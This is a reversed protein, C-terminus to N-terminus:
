LNETKLGVEYLVYKLEEVSLDPLLLEIADLVKNKPREVEVNILPTYKLGKLNDTRKFSDFIQNGSMVGTVDPIKSIDKIQTQGKNQTVSLDSIQKLNDEYLKKPEEPEILNKKTKKRGWKNVRKGPSEEKIEEKLYNPSEYIQNGEYNIEITQAVRKEEPTIVVDDLKNLQPLKNIVKLRYKSDACCPNESLWLIRLKKLNKLYDVQNIDSIENKRMYIEELELCHSFPELTSIKNMTLSVIKLNKLESLLTVDSLSSGWFNLKQVLSFNHCKTKQIILEPTLIRTNSM